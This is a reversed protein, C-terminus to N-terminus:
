EGVDGVDDGVGKEERRGDIIGDDMRVFAGNEEERVGVDVINGVKKGVIIGVLVGDIMGDIIGVLKGM